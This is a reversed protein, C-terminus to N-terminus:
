TVPALQTTLRDITGNWGAQMGCNMWWDVTQETYQDPLHVRFDMFTRRGLPALRFTVLPSAEPAELDLAPWGGVAGWYFALRRSPEIERYVGGTYYVKEPNEIMQQRWQGGIRLDVMPPQEPEYGPNFFWTLLEPKTWCDFVVDPPADFTRELSIGRGLAYTATM